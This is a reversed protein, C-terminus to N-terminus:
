SIEPQTSSNLHDYCINKELKNSSYLRLKQMIYQKEMYTKILQQMKKGHEKCSVFLCYQTFVKLVSTVCM